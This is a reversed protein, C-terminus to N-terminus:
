LADATLPRHKRLFRRLADRTEVATLRFRAEPLDVLERLRPFRRGGSALMYSNFAVAYRKRPHPPRGSADRLDAVREGPPAGPQFRYTFGSLSAAYRDSRGAAEEIVGRLEAATIRLVGIRNEFPVLRWVDAETVDGAPLEADSLTGHLVGDAGTASAIAAQLLREVPLRGTGGGPALPLATEGVTRRLAAEVEARLPAIGAALAPDEPTDAGVALLRASRSVVRRAVTDYVLDVRGLAGGHYGAQTYLTSGLLASEVYEHSHGGIVVDFEPFARAIAGVQNAYDDRGNRWGQHVLLVLLDPERERVAPLVRRLAAVSDEVAVNGLLSPLFWSPLGPTTLGVVAVRVGDRQVLTFPRLRPLPDPHGPRPRLNAGLVTLPTDRVLAALPGIGWDFEHNGLQWADYGMRSMTELVARGGTRLSLPDGQLTDGNDLLVVNRERERVARVLAAVRLLSGHPHPNRASPALDAIRGHLDTTHLITLPVERAPAAARAALLLAALLPVFRRRAPTM